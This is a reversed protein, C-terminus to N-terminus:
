GGTVSRTEAILNFTTDSREIDISLLTPLETQVPQWRDEWTRTDPNNLQAPNYRLRFAVISSVLANNNSETGAPTLRNALQTLDPLLGSQPASAADWWPPLSWEAYDISRREPNYRYRALVPKGAMGSQRSYWTTLYLTDQRGQLGVLGREPILLLHDLQQRLQHQLNWEKSIGRLSHMTQGASRYLSAMLMVLGASISLVILIEILTFGHRHRRNLHGPM